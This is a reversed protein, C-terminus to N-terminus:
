HLTMASSARFFRPRSTALHMQSPEASRVRNRAGEMFMLMREVEARFVEGACTLQV